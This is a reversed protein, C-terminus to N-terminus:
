ADALAGRAPRRVARGPWATPEVIRGGSPAFLKSVDLAEAIATNTEGAASRLIIQARRVQSHALARSRAMAEFQDREFASLTLEFSKPRGMRM